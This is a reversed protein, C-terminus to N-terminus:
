FNKKKDINLKQEFNFVKYTRYQSKQIKQNQNTPDTIKTTTDRGKFMIFQIYDNVQCIRYDNKGNFILCVTLNNKIYM